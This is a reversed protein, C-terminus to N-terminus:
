LINKIPMGVLVGRDDKDGDNLGIVVEIFIQGVVNRRSYRGEHNHFSVVAGDVFM